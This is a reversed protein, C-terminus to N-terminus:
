QDRAQREGMTSERPPDLPGRMDPWAVMYFILLFILGPIRLTALNKHQM